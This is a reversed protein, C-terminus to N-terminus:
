LCDYLLLCFPLPLPGDDVEGKNALSSSADACFAQEELVWPYSPWFTPVILLRSRLRSRLRSSVIYGCAWPIAVSNCCHGSDFNAALQHPSLSRTTNLLCMRISVLHSKLEGLM